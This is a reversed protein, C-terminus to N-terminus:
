VSLLVKREFIQLARVNLVEQSKAFQVPPTYVGLQFSYGSSTYLLLIFMNRINHKHKLHCEHRPFYDLFILSYRSGLIETSPSNEAEVTSIVRYDITSLTSWIFRRSLCFGM